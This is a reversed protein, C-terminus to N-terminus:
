WGQRQRLGAPAHMLLEARPRGAVVIVPGPKQGNRRPQKFQVQRALLHLRGGPSLNSPHLLSLNVPNKTLAQHTHAWTAPTRAMSSPTGTPGFRALSPPAPKFEMSFARPLVAWVAFAQEASLLVLSCFFHCCSLHHLHVHVPSSCPTSCRFGLVQAFPLLFLVKLMNLGLVAGGTSLIYSATTTGVSIKRGPGPSLSSCAFCHLHSTM